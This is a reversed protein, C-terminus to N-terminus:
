GASIADELTLVNKERVFERLCALTRGMRALILAERSRVRSDGGDSAFATNPYRMIREVDEDGMSHYVMQAGGQDMMELITDIEGRLTKPKGKFAAVRPSPRETRRFADPPIAQRGDAYSYDKHGLATLRTQMEDVIRARTQPDAFRKRIADPGTPWRGVPCRSASIRARGIMRISILWWTWARAATSRSWLM